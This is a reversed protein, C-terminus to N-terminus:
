PGPPRTSLTGSWITGAGNVLFGNRDLTFDGRRSFYNIASFNPVGGSSDIRERVAVFGEGDLGFHTPVRTETLTGAITNTARSFASVSGGRQLRLPASSVMDEFGTDVRKYGTTQSNAINSSINGLAFSQAQMGTVANVLANFISM